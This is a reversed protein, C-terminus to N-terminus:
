RISRRLEALAEALEDSASRLQSQQQETRAQLHEEIRNRLAGPSTGAFIPVVTSDSAAPGVVDELLLEDPEFELPALEFPRLRFRPKALQRLKNLVRIEM